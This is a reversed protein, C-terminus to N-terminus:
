EAAVSYAPDTDTSAPEGEVLFAPLEVDEARPVEDQDHGAETPDSSEHGPTRLVPPLWGSGALLREAESAMDGKKLHDILQASQEGKAERVAALIQAKTVRGLYGDKTPTWGAAVMDLNLMGALQDAHALAQPRRDYPQYVANITSGACHAFLSSRSDGDLELLFAWLDQAKKPLQLSWNGHREAMAQGVPTDNLGPAHGKLSASEAKIELCSDVTYVGYFTKLAMAHLVALFAADPDNALTERLALTRHATLETMLRDSLRGSTNTEEDEGVDTSPTPAGSGGGVTFVVRKFAGDPGTEVAEAGEISTEPANVRPEDEQRVFGREVKLVGAQDISVFVGARAIEEPDYVAPRDEFRALAAELEGFRADVDEPLEEFAEYEAELRELEERLAAAAAEDEDSLSDQTSALRRLGLTYGYPFDPRAEVWKWGEARVEEAVADLKERVLRELLATDEFWGGDDQQFLDRAIVGAAAEYAETGVFAARRDSAKISGQTLLRRIYFPEKNYGQQIAAWVEEQRAHDDTVCFAMLQELTLENAAYLDLLKPSAAVLKLRQRVIAPTLFFRAAIAEDGMGHEDRLTKFARFQDLPHLAERQINEALSDEEAIGDTKVVCPVPANKALRKQKVLVKLAEFRRGGAPVEFAGTEQGEGDLIPRVHLSQLLGRNAIDEALQEISTGDKIRRVNAQSLVLKNLAIDRAGNLVIKSM